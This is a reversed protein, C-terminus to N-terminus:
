NEISDLVLLLNSEHTKITPISKKVVICKEIPHKEIDAISPLLKSICWFTYPFLVAACILM